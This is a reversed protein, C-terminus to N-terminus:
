PECEEGAPERRQVHDRFYQATVSGSASLLAAPTGEFIIHGGNTGSGPGLDIVWDARAVVDLDHEVVVVTNGDDVIQDLLSVLSEVDAMHLGATPEDLLYLGGQARLHAALKLRQREGGSLSSLPQGLTLYGLGARCLANLADHVSWDEPLVKTAFDAAEEATLALVDVITKSGLQYELVEPRYRLGGCVDCTVTVPDLFALDTEIVGRGHCVGCGGTSNFSFMSAAVGNARAFARRVPGMVDLYTAPISRPSIGTSSQDVLIAEPYQAALVQSMLTSKGSGAVGTVVTLAEIPLDVSIDQLNHLDARRIPLNGRATRQTRDVGRQRRLYRGTVTEATALDEPAGEFVVHGGATGAGPGLEIVHDAAALMAADHEVLLVTNGKDRLRHLLRTLRGIDRPHLGTSPEDFIYIIETLSSALHRVTRLRQGEGGSVTTSTRDLSLYGLGVAEINRLTTLATDAVTRAVPDELAELVGILTSVEMACYDAINHPGIRSERAARNLRTGECDPCPCASAVRAVQDRERDRLSTERKLYRRTFRTVVGEYENRVISHKTRRHVSFGSGYLLLEREDPTFQGVPKDPDFLGSEAYLQWQATGVAFSPFTLAGENLTRNEDILDSATITTTQGLGECHECMGLPDNFSYANAPGASPRGHRSFLVRLIPNVETVTGVTSRVNGGLGRQDVVVATSLNELARVRPRELKALRHRVFSPFTENLQRQAEVAVTDHVLSSKGSGSVGVFATMAHKPINISVDHLNNVEAGTVAIAPGNQQTPSMPESPGGVREIDSRRYTLM